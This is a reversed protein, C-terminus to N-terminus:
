YFYGAISLLVVYFSYLTYRSKIFIVWLRYFYGVISLLVVYFSYLTRIPKDIYSTKLQAKFFDLSTLKRM